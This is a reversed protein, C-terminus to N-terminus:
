FRWPVNNVNIILSATMRQLKRSIAAKTGTREQAMWGSQLGCRFFSNVTLALTQWIYINKTSTKNM